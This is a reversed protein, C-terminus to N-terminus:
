SMGVSSSQRRPEGFILDVTADVHEYTTRIPRGQLAWGRLAVGLAAGAVFAISAADDEHTDVLADDLVTTFRRSFRAYVERAAPDPTVELITLLRFFNPAREYARVAGRLLARLRDADNTTEPDRSLVRHEFTDSWALLAHAYLLEKSPFYRYLTGLAVGAHEAVERVQVQEYEREHLLLQASELIQACRQEQRPTRPIAAPEAPASM